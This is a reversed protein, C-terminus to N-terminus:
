HGAQRAHLKYIAQVEQGSLVRNYVRVEDILGHVYSDLWHDRHARCKGITFVYGPPEKAIKPPDPNQKEADLKGDLYLKVTKGDSTGVLHIWTGTPPRNHPGYKSSYTGARFSYGSYRATGGLYLVAVHGENKPRGRFLVTGYGSARSLNVWASWSMAKWNTTDLRSSDCEAYERSHSISLAKGTLGDVLGPSGVLTGHLSNGSDDLIKDGTIRDFSYHLVLGRRPNRAPVDILSLREIEEMVLLAEDIKRAQTLSKQLSMLGQRYQVTLKNKSIAYDAKAKDQSAVYQQHLIVLAQPSEPADFEFAADLADVGELVEQIKLVGKLDGSAQAKEKLATARSVFELLNLKQQRAFAEDLPASLRAYTAKMDEFKGSWLFRMGSLLIFIAIWSFFKNTM